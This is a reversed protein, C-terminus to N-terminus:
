TSSCWAKPSTLPFLPMQPWAMPPMPAIVCAIAASARRSPTWMSHSAGTSRMMVLREALRMTPLAPPRTRALPMRSASPRTNPAGFMMPLRPGFGRKRPRSWGSSRGSSKRACISRQRTPDAENRMFTASESSGRKLARRERAPSVCRLEPMMM